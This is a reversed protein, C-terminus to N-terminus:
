KTIFYRFSVRGPGAAQDELVDLIKGGNQEIFKKVEERKVGWMGMTPQSSRRIEVLRRVRRYFGLLGGSDRIQRVAEM